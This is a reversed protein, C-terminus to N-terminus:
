PVINKDGYPLGIGQAPMPQSARDSLAEGRLHGHVAKCTYTAWPTQWTWKPKSVNRVADDTANAPLALRKQPCYWQAHVYVNFM